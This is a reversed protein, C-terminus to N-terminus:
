QIELVEFYKYQGTGTCLGTCAYTYQLAESVLTFTTAIANCAHAIVQKALTFQVARASMFGTSDTGSGTSVTVEKQTKPATKPSDFLLARGLILGSVAVRLLLHGACKKCM